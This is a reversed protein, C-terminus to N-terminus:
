EKTATLIARENSTLNDNLGRWSHLGMAWIWKKQHDLPVIEGSDLMALQKLLNFYFRASEWSHDKDKAWRLYKLVNGACFGPAWGSELIDDLPQRGPGYHSKRGDGRDVEAAILKLGAREVAERLQDRTPSGFVSTGIESCEELLAWYPDTTSPPQQVEIIKLNYTALNRVFQGASFGDIDCADSYADRVLQLDIDSM